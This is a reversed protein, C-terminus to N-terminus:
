SVRGERGLFDFDPLSMGDYSFTLKLNDAMTSDRYLSTVQLCKKDTEKNQGVLIKQLLTKFNRGFFRESIKTFSSMKSAIFTTM